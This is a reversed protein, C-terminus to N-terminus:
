VDSLGIRAGGNQHSTIIAQITALIHLNHRGSIGPELGEQIYARLANMVGQESAPAPAIPLETSERSGGPQFRLGPVSYFLLTGADTHIELHQHERQGIHTLEYTAQLGSAFELWAYSGAPDRYKSWPASFLRGNVAEIPGFWDVFLDLHHCAMDWLVSAPYDLTRPETRRRHHVHDFFAPTGQEGAAIVQKIALHGATYRYNQSVCFCVGADDAEAVLERATALTPAMGKEVLTHLGAAFAERCFRAHTATPTCIVAVDAEVATAAAAVSDFCREEGLGTKDRARALFDPNVDILAVSTWHQDGAVVDLPWAGRGGCGVHVVRLPETM